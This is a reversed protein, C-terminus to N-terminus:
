INEVYSKITDPDTCVIFDGSFGRAESLLKEVDEVTAGGQRGDAPEIWQAANELAEQRTAGVGYLTYGDQIVAFKHKTADFKM